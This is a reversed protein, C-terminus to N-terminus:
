NGKQAALVEERSKSISELREKLLKEYELNSSKPNDSVLKRYNEMGYNLIELMDDSRKLKTSLYFTMEEKPVDKRELIERQIRYYNDEDEKKKRTQEETLKKPILSNNPFKETLPKFKEYMQEYLKAREEPTLSELYSKKKTPETESQVAVPGSATEEVHGSFDLFSGGEFVSSEKRLLTEESLGGQYNTNEKHESAGPFLLYFIGILSIILLTIVIYTKKQSM